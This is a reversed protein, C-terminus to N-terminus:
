LNFYEELVNQNPMKNTNMLMIHPLINLEEALVAIEERCDFPYVWLSKQVKKFGWREITHRFYDRNHRNNEPIDYSIIQWIGNWITPKNLIIEELNIIKQLQKGRNTLIIKEGGLIILGNKELKTLIKTVRKKGQKKLFPKLAIPLGPLVFCSAVLLGLGIGKLIDKERKGLKFYIKKNKQRM